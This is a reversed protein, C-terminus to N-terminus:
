ARLGFGQRRGKAAEYSCLATLRDPASSDFAVKVSPTHEKSLTQPKPIRTQPKPNLPLVPEKRPKKLISGEFPDILTVLLPM